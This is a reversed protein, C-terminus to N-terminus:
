DEMIRCGTTEDYCGLQFGVLEYGAATMGALVRRVLAEM